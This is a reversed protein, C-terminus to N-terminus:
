MTNCKSQRCQELYGEEEEKGLAMGQRRQVGKVTMNQKGAGHYWRLRQILGGDMDDVSITWKGSASKLLLRTAHSIFSRCFYRQRCKRPLPIRANRALIHIHRKASRLRFIDCQRCHRYPQPSRLGRRSPLRAHKWDRCSHQVEAISISPTSLTNKLKEPLVPSQDTSRSQSFAPSTRDVSVTSMDRSQPGPVESNPNPHLPLPKDDLSFISLDEGNWLDGWQHNNQCLDTLISM